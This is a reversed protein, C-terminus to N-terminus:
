WRECTTSSGLYSRSLAASEYFSRCTKRVEQKRYSIVNILITVRHTTDLADRTPRWKPSWREFLRERAQRGREKEKAGVAIRESPIELNVYQFADPGESNPTPLHHLTEGNHDICPANTPQVAITQDGDKDKNKSLICENVAVGIAPVQSLDPKDHWSHM